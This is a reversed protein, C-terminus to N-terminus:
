LKTQRYSKLLPLTNKNKLMFRAQDKKRVTLTICMDGGCGGGAGGGCRLDKKLWKEYKKGGGQERLAVTSGGIAKGKNM